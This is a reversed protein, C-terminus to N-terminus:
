KSAYKQNTSVGIIEVLRITALSCSGMGRTTKDWGSCRRPVAIFHTHTPHFLIPRSPLPFPIRSHPPFHSFATIPPLSALISFCTSMWHLYPPLFTDLGGGGDM